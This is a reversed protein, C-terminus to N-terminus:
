PEPPIEDQLRTLQVNRDTKTNPPALVPGTTLRNRLDLCRLDTDLAHNKNHLERDINVLQDELANFTAKANDFQLTLDARTKKLEHLEDELGVAAEDRCCEVGPRFLRRELRTEVLKISNRKSEIAKELSTIEKLLKEMDRVMNLRQWDLENRIRQTEYIRKRLAFNTADNQAKLDNRSRERPVFMGERLNQSSAIEADALGKLFQCNELWGEYTVVDAPIRAPDPKLSINGSNKDSELVARDIKLADEKHQVDRIIKYKLEELRNVQTWADMCNQTMMSKLNELMKLEYKIELEGDDTCLDAGGRQDRQTLCDNVVSFSLGLFEIEKETLEKEKRLELIERDITKVLDEMTNKWKLVEVYRDSIRSNNHHTTWYTKTETENRLLRSENRLNFADRRRTDCTQRLEWVKGHWDPLPVRPTPKELVVISRHM